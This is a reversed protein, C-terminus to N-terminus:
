SIHPNPVPPEAAVGCSGAGYAEVAYRYAAAVDANVQDISGNTTTLASSITANAKIVAGFIEATSPAARPIHKGAQSESSSLARADTQLKSVAGRLEQLATEVDGAAADLEGADTAVQLADAEVQDAEACTTTSQQQLDTTVQQEDNATTALDQSSQLVSPINRVVGTV